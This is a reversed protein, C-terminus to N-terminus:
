APPTNALALVGDMRGYLFQKGDPLFCIASVGGGIEQKYTYRLREQRVDWFSLTQLTGIALWKGDPSFALSLVANHTLRSPDTQASPIRVTHLLTADPMRWIRVIGAGDGSALLRGDPSFALSWVGAYHDGFQRLCRRQEIEWLFIHPSGGGRAICSPRYLFEKANSSGIALWRSHPSFALAMGTGRYGPSVDIHLAGTKMDWVRLYGGAAAAWRGNPSLAFAGTGALIPPQELLRAWRAQEIHWVGGIDNIGMIVIHQANPTFSAGVPLIASPQDSGRKQIQVKVSRAQRHHLNWVLMNQERLACSIARRGQRDIDISAVIDSHGEPTRMQGTRLNLVYLSSSPMGDFGFSESRTIYAIESNGPLFACPYEMYGTGRLAGPAIRLQTVQQLTDTAYLTLTNSSWRESLPIAALWRAEYSLAVPALSASMKRVQGRKLEFFILHYPSHVYVAAASDPSFLPSHVQYPMEYSFTLVGETQTLRWVGLGQHPRNVWGFLYRGDPSFAMPSEADPIEFQVRQTALDIVLISFRGEEYRAQALRPPDSAVDLAGIGDAFTEEYLPKATSLDYVVVKGGNPEWFGLRRGDPSIAVRTNVPSLLPSLTFTRLLRLDSRRWLYVALGGVGIIRAGDPSAFVQRLLHGQGAMWVIPPTNLAQAHM